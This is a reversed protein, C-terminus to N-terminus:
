AHGHGFQQVPRRWHLRRLQQQRHLKDARDNWLRQLPWRRRQRLQRQPPASSTLTTAGGYRSFLGGGAGASNGSVTCGNLTTTGNTNYITSLGGGGYVASNGSVTCNTLTTAGAANLLGGGDTASNDSVTCNTLTTTGSSNVGGGNGTASNGSVTCNTLTATGGDNFLGGGTNAHGGAITMGSLSAIVGADVQFVRSLGGGSVTLYAKPGTITEKESTNSLELQNGTLTITQPTAFIHKDFTITSIGSSDFNAFAIAEPLSLLGTGPFLADSTTNVVLSTFIPGANALAFSVPPSGTASASVIYNGVANNPEANVAAQGGAIVASPASLIALAGHTVSNAFSVVGGNVPEVPNNATVSVSLPIFPTGIRSTQPSGSGPM